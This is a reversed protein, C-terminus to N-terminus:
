DMTPRHLCRDPITPVEAGLAARVRPLRDECVAFASETLPQVRLNPHERHELWDNETFLLVAEAEIALPELTVRLRLVVGDRAEPRVNAPHIFHEPEVGLRHARGMGSALNGLSYAVWADGRVSTFREIPQLVHPGTGLIVDAGADILRQALQRQSASVEAVFDTSWHLAVIVLEASSRASAIAALLPGEPDLRAISLPTADTSRRNMSDTASLFAIRHGRHLTIRAAYAADSDVGVGAHVLHAADLAAITERLGAHGQDLAHNNALGVLEVGMSALVEALAISGGLVPARRPRETRSRPWGGDLAVHDDVLPMELNLYTLAGPRLTGAYGELLARYGAGDNAHDRIFGMALGNLVLDGSAEIVLADEEIAPEIAPEIPAAVIPPPTEISASTAPSAEIADGCGASWGLLLVLCARM